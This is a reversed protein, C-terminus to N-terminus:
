QDSGRPLTGVNTALHHQVPIHVTYMANNQLGVASRGSCIVQKFLQVQATSDHQRCSNSEVQKICSLNQMLCLVAWRLMIRCAHASGVTAQLMVASDWYSQVTEGRCWHALHM